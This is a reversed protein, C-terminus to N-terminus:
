KHLADLYNGISAGVYSGVKRIPALAPLRLLRRMLTVATVTGLLLIIDVGITVMMMRDLKIFLNAGETNTWDHNFWPRPDGIAAGVALGMAVTVALVVLATGLKGEKM